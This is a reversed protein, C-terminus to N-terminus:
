FEAQRVKAPAVELPECHKLIGNAATMALLTGVTTKQQRQIEQLHAAMVTFMRRMRFLLIEDHRPPSDAACAGSFPKRTQKGGGDTVRM